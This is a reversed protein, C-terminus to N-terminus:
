FTGGGGAHFGPATKTKAKNTVAGVDELIPLGRMVVAAFLFLGAITIAIDWRGLQGVLSLGVFGITAAVLPRTVPLGHKADYTCNVLATVGSIVILDGVDHAM